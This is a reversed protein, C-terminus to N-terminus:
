DTMADGDVALRGLHARGLVTQQLEEHGVLLAGISAALQQILDPAAIHIDLLTGNVYVDAAQALGKPFGVLVQHLRHAAGAVTEGALDSARGREAVRVARMSSNPQVLVPLASEDASEQQQKAGAQQEP